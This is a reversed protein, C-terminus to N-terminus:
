SEKKPWHQWHWGLSLLDSEIEADVVGETVNNEEMGSCYFDLYDENKERLDAIIHGSSRWSCTWFEKPNDTFWQINCLAAYLKQAYVFDQVKTRILKNSLLEKELDRKM